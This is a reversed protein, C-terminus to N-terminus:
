APQPAPAAAGGGNGAPGGGAGRRMEQLVQDRPGNRHIEGNVLLVIRDALGLLPLRHSIVFVTRRQRKLEQLAAALAALGADDLNADPEDLVVLAPLGYLARALGLRQRQGGSLTAGAAAVPTDYGAPFRLIMDHIGAHRAAEIVRQPDVPGFRAINEAISGELLEIDQPLYGLQPGLLARDFSRVDQGDLRVEGETWPWIGTLARALTSKGSGSPGIIAVLEGPAFVADLGRLIPQERGPATARLGELRVAGQLGEAPSVAVPPGAHEALLAALSRWANRAVVLGKWGATLQDLPALARSMLVNAAIMAGVSLEGDIVLLAGAGLMLSQQCYRLFKSASQWRLALDQAAAVARLHAQQYAQWRARLQGLMGLAEIVEANRLKSHAQAGLEAGTSAVAAGSTRSARHSLWLLGGLLLAFVLALGGLLPHLLYLVLIYIPTWPADLFAFIGAGTLFQRLQVMDAFPQAPNRGAQTLAAGFSARFVPANLATGLRAGLRVLVRARSWEFVAILSLLFLTILSVALLTLSNQSIMVRDYVQLMYVTPTLMLLNTAMSVLVVVALERRLAFLAAPLAPQPGSQPVAPGSM